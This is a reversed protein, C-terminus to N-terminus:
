QNNELDPTGIDKLFYKLHMLLQIQRLTAGVVIAIDPDRASYSVGASQISKLIKHQSIKPRIPNTFIGFKL